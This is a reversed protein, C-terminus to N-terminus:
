KKGGSGWAGVYVLQYFTGNGLPQIAVIHQKDKTGSKFLMGGAEAKDDGCTLVKASDDKGSDDPKGSAKSCDLVAGYKALAKKYYDAVKAPSDATEMKLVALKFGSGGGWLGLNASASDDDKEKHPSSGPYIALGVDKSKAEPSIILGAGKEAQAAIRPSGVAVAIYLLVLARCFIAATFHKSM